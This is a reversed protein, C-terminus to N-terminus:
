RRGDYGPLATRGAACRASPAVGASYTAGEAGRTRTEVMAIPRLSGQGQPEPLFYL